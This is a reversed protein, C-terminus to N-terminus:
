VMVLTEGRLLPESRQPRYETSPFPLRLQLCSSVAIPRRDPEGVRLQGALVIDPGDSLSLLM